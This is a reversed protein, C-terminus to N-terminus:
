RSNGKGPKGSSRRDLGKGPKSPASRGAVMAEYVQRSVGKPPQASKSINKANNTGAAAQMAPEPLRGERLKALISSEKAAQAGLSDALDPHNFFNMIQRFYRKITIEAPPKKQNRLADNLNSLSKTTIAKSRFDGYEGDILRDERTQVSANVLKKVGPTPNEQLAAANPHGGAPIAEARLWPLQKRPYVIHIFDYSKVASLLLMAEKESIGLMSRVAIDTAQRIKIIGNMPGKDEALAGIAYVRSPSLRKNRPKLRFENDTQFGGYKSPLFNQWLSRLLSGEKSDAELSELSLTHGTANVIDDFGHEEMLTDGVKRIVTFKEKELRGTMGPPISDLRVPHRGGPMGETNPTLMYAKKFARIKWSEVHAYAFKPDTERINFTLENFEADRKTATIEKKVDVVGDLVRLSGDALVSHLKRATAVFTPVLISEARSKLESNKNYRDRGSGNLSDLVKPGAMILEIIMKRVLIPAIKKAEIEELHRGLRDKAPEGKQWVADIESQSVGHSKWEKRALKLISSFPLVKKRSLIKNLNEMTFHRLSLSEDPHRVSPIIGTRSLFALSYNHNVAGAELLWVGRAVDIATLMAGLAAIKRSSSISKMLKPLPYATPHYGKLGNLGFIDIPMGVGIAAVAFDVHETRRGGSKVEVSNKYPVVELVASSDLTASSKQGCHGSNLNQLSENGNKAAYEGFSERLYTTKLIESISKNPDTIQKIHRAYDEPFRPFLSFCSAPNNAYAVEDPQFAFGGGLKGRPEYIKVSVDPLRRQFKPHAKALRLYLALQALFTTGTPGGGHISIKIHKKLKPPM